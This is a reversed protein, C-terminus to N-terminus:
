NIAWTLGKMQYSHNQSIRLLKKSKECGKLAKRLLNYQIKKFPDKSPAYVSVNDLVALRIKDSIEKNLRRM